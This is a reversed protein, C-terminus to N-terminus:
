NFIIITRSVCLCEYFFPQFAQQASFTLHHKFVPTDNKPQQNKPHIAKKRKRKQKYAEIVATISIYNMLHLTVISSFVSFAMTAKNENFLVQLLLIGILACWIQIQIANENDGLFYKLPFNQKLKKFFNQTNLRM